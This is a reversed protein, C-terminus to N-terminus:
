HATPPKSILPTHAAIAQGHQKMLGDPCTLNSEDPIRQPGSYASEPLREPCLCDLPRSANSSRDQQTPLHPMNLSIGFEELLRGSESILATQLVINVMQASRSRRMPPPLRRRLALDPSENLKALKASQTHRGAAASQACLGSTSLHLGRPARAPGFWGVRLVPKVEIRNCQEPKASPLKM